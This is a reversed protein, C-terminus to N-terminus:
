SIIQDIEDKTAFEVLGARKFKSPDALIIKRRAARLMMKKMGVENYNNIYFSGNEGIGNVGLFLIDADIDELQKEAPLGLTSNTQVEYLGGLLVTPVKKLVEPLNLIAFSPTIITIDSRDKLLKLLQFCTSGADVLVSANPEILTLAKQAIREKELINLDFRQAYDLRIIEQEIIMASGHLKRVLDQNELSQLDRRITNESVNLLQSLESIAVTKRSRLLDLIETRRRENKTIEM